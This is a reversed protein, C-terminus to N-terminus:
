RVSPVDLGNGRSKCDVGGFSFFFFFFWALRLTLCSCADHLFFCCLLMGAQICEVM